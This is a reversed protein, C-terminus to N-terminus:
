WDRIEQTKPLFDSIRAPEDNRRASSVLPWSSRAGSASTDTCSRSSACPKRPALYEREAPSVPAKARPTIAM